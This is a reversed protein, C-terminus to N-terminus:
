KVVEETHIKAMAHGTCWAVMALSIALIFAQIFERM